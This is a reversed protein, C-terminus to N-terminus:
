ESVEVIGFQESVEEYGNVISTVINQAYEWKLDEFCERDYSSFEELEERSYDYFDYGSVEEIFDEDSVKKFIYDPLTEETFVEGTERVKFQYHYSEM